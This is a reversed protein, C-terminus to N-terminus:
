IRRKELPVKFVDVEPRRSEIGIVQMGTDSGVEFWEGTLWYVYDGSTIPIPEPQGGGAWGNGEIIIYILSIEQMKSRNVRFIKM